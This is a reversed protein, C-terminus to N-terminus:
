MLQKDHLKPTTLGAHAKPRQVREAGLQEGGVQALIGAVALM